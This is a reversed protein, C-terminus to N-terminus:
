PTYPDRPMEPFDLKDECWKAAQFLDLESYPKGILQLGLPLNERSLGSPVTVSPLGTLSWPSNFAPSGTWKLSKPATDTATPCALCDYPELLKVMDNIIGARIRQARLYATAPVLLGSSIYGRLYERYEEPRQRFDDEHAAATEVSMVVRHVSPVLKFSEPLAVDVLEAGEGWLKGVAQEFGQWVNDQANEKFYGSLVGIKPPRDHDAAPKATPCMTKLTIVADEVTRTMFGIHDLSWSLPFVGGRSLLDYTGKFGVVGCYCAPRLVSGGTQSGLAMPAMGVAVAAASGSSSGGPTHGTNWPNMTPAPDHLAFETTETKGLIVAGAEKLDTVTDADITPVFGSYISSGMTTRMGATYYIDKVGVPIGHMPSRFNGEEAERSLREAQDLVKERDVTVWAEVAPETKEIRDLLAEAYGVPTLDGSHILRSVESLSLKYPEM